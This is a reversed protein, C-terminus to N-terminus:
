TNSSTAESNSPCLISQRPGLHKSYSIQGKLVIAEMFYCKAVPVWSLMNGGVREWSKAVRRKSIPM